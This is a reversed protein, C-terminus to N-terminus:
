FAISIGAMVETQVWIDSEVFIRCEDSDCFIESDSDVFSGYARGGIYLKTTDTLPIKSAIGLSMSFATEDDLQDGDPSFYSIGLGGSLYFPVLGDSLLINGGVHMYSISLDENDIALGPSDFNTEYHSVLFEGQRKRDFKWAAIAGFSTGEELDITIDQETDEFEGSMRYGVIPTIEYDPVETTKASVAFSCIAAAYLLCHSLRM